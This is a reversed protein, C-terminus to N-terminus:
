SHMFMSSLKRYLRTAISVKNAKIKLSGKVLQKNGYNCSKDDAPKLELPLFSEVPVWNNDQDSELTITGGYNLAFFLLNSNLLQSKALKLPVLPQKPIKDIPQKAISVLEAKCVTYVTKDPIFLVSDVNTLSLDKKDSATIFAQIQNSNFDVLDLIWAKDALWINTYVGEQMATIIGDFPALLELQESKLRLNEKITKQYEVDSQKELLRKRTEDTLALGASYYEETQLQLINIIKENTLKPSSLGILKDGTIVKSNLNVKFESIQAEYPTYLRQTKSYMLAPLYINKGFPIFLLLIVGVCCSVTLIVNKKKIINARLLWINYIERSFPILIFLTLGIVFVFVGVVQIYYLFLLIASFLFVKYVGTLIAFILLFRFKNYNYREPLKADIGFLYRRLYYKYVANARLSLNRIKLYDSFIYYGDFKIFPIINISISVLWSIAAIFFLLNKIINDGPTFFWLFGAIVALYLEIRIGATSVELRKNADFMMSTTVDTYLLPYFFIFTVGMEPVKGGHMKCAYAHGFEHFIKTIILTFLILIMSTFDSFAPMSGSFSGWNSALLYVNILFIFTIIYFFHKSFVPKVYHCTKNLFKDPNFLPITFFFLKGTNKTFKMLINERSKKIEALVKSGVVLLNSHLLFRIITEINGRDINLTTESNVTEVLKDISGIDWRSIIEYEMRGLYYYKNEIEDTLIWVRDQWFDFGCDTIKITPKLKPLSEIKSLKNTTNVM